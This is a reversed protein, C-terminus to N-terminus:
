HHFQIVCFRYKIRRQRSERELWRLHGWTTAKPSQAFGWCLSHPSGGGGRKRRCVSGVQSEFKRRRPLRLRYSQQDNWTAGAPLGHQASLGPYRTHQDPPVKSRLSSLFIHVLISKLINEQLNIQVYQYLPHGQYTSNLTKTYSTAHLESIKTSLMAIVSVKGACMPTTHARVGSDLRNGIINPFYLAKDERILVKPAMWTKGGNVRTMHLDYFYGTSAEKVLHRRKELQKEQNLFDATRESLTKVQTTPVDPVGLPRSLSPIPPADDDSASEAEAPKTVDIKGSARASYWRRCTARSSDRFRAVLFLM